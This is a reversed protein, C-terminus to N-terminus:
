GSSFTASRFYGSISLMCSPHIQTIRPRPSKEVNWLYSDYMRNIQEYLPEPQSSEMKTDTVSALFEDDDDDDDDDAFMDELKMKEEIAPKHPEASGNEGNEVGEMEHDMDADQSEGVPKQDEPEADTIMTDKSM